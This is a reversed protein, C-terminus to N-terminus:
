FPTGRLLAELGLELDSKALMKEITGVKLKAAIALIERATVELTSVQGVLREFEPLLHGHDPDGSWLALQQRYHPIFDLRERYLRTTRAVTQNDMVWPTALADRLNGLLPADEEVQGDILDRIVPLKSIPHMIPTRDGAGAAPESARHARRKRSKPM